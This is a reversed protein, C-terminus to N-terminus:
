FDKVMNKNKTMIYDKMNHNMKLIILIKIKWKKKYILIKWKKIWIQNQLQSIM